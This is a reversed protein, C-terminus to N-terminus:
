EKKKKTLSAFVWVNFAGSLLVLVLCVFPSGWFGQKGQVAILAAMSLPSTLFVAWFGIFPDVKYGLTLSLVVASGYLGVLVLRTRDSVSGFM